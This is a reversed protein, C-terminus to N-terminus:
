AEIALKALKLASEKTLSAAMFLNRHCFVAGEVGSVKELETDRLGAWAQPLDKKNVFNEEQVANIRWKTKDKNPSIVFLIESYKSLTSHWPYYEDMVIIRKDESTNYADEVFPIAEIKDQAIKIERKLIKEAITVVEFFSDDYSDEEKWTSGFSGVLTNFSYVEIDDQTYTFFAYGNDGADISQVLKSDVLQAVEESGCLEKGWKKWVLGFSAYPVGNKRTGAGEKQHHDFRNKQEDYINGVDFVIDATKIICEDRTRVVETISDGFYLRLTALAFVDDAHFRDDHTVIKM